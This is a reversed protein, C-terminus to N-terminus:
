PCDDSYHPSLPFASHLDGPSGSCKDAEPTTETLEKITGLEFVKPAKYLKKKEMACRGELQDVDHFRKKWAAPGSSGLFQLVALLLQSTGSRM